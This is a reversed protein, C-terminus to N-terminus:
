AEAMKLAARLLVNAGNVCAQWDSFERPSHSIGGQSPIFLMGAETLPALSQADHGAGSPMATHTLALSEAAAALAAQPRQSMPAPTCSGLPEATHTLGYQRAVLHALSLLATELEALRAPDESRFELALDAAGPIINFGGPKFQMQGV